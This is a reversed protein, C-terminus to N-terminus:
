HLTTSGHELSDVDIGIVIGKTQRVFDRSYSLPPFEIWRGNNAKGMVIKVKADFWEVVRPEIMDFTAAKQGTFHDALYDRAAIRFETMSVKTMEHEDLRIFGEACKECEYIGNTLLEYMFRDLGRLSEVVQERLGSTAPPTFLARWDKEPKWNMLEHLMAELGGSEMQEKMRRFYGIEGIHDNTADFVAFRRERGGAPVVWKENSIMAVRMFNDAMYKDVGKREIPILPSTILDKLTSENAQDGAWFAEEMLLLLTHEYQANFNGVVRKGNAEKFFYSPMLKHVFDFVISKGTGKEGRIVVAVSGKEGPRQFIHALWTMFWIFQDLKGACIVNLIHNRLISWDGERPKIPFGRFLNYILPDDNGPAFKIEDYARHGDWEMWHKFAKVKKLSGKTSGELWILRASERLAADTASLFKAPKGNGPEFIIRFCSGLLGTGYVKNLELLHKKEEDSLGHAHAPNMWRPQPYKSKRKEATDARPDNQNLKFKEPDPLNGRFRRTFADLRGVQGPQDHNEM